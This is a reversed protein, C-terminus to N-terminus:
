RKEIVEKFPLIFKKFWKEGIFGKKLIKKGMMEFAENSVFDDVEDGSSQKKEEEEWRKIKRGEEVEVGAETTKEQIEEQNFTKMPEEIEEAIEAFEEM